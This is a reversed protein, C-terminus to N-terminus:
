SSWDNMLRIVILACSFVSMGTGHVNCIKNIYHIM